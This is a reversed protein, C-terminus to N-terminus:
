KKENEGSEQIRCEGARPADRHAFRSRSAPPDNRMKLNRWCGIINSRTDTVYVERALNAAMCAHTPVIIVNQGIALANQGDIVSHEEYIRTVVHRSPHIVLGFGGTDSMKGGRDSGLLKSGANLIARGADPKSIVTALVKLACDEIGASGNALQMADNFVYNGPRAESVSQRDSLFKLSPSSGISVVAPPLQKKTLLASLASMQRIVGASIRGMEERSVAAYVHGEHTFIGRWEVGPVAKASQVLACLEDESAIGCRRGGTDVEILVGVRTRKEAMVRSLRRIGEASDVAVSLQATGTLDALQRLSGWDVIERAIFIDRIGSHIMLETERLTAVTIGGAGAAMQMQAIEPFNHSKVHPRIQVGHDACLKAMRGINRELRAKDVIVAPTNLEDIKM